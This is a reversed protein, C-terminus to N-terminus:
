GAHHAPGRWPRDSRPAQRTVLVLAIRGLEREATVRVPSGLAALAISVNLDTRMRELDPTSMAEFSASDDRV